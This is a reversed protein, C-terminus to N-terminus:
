TENGDGGRVTAAPSAADVGAALAGAGGLLPPALAAGLLGGTQKLFSRRSPGGPAPTATDDPPLPPAQM